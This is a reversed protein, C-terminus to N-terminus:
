ILELLAAEATAKLNAGVGFMASEFRNETARARVHHDTYETVANLLGWATGAVGPLDSGKANGKFLGMIKQFAASERVGKEGGATVPLFSEVLGKADEDSVKVQALSRMNGLFHDFAKSGVLGMKDKIANPDFVTNHRVKVTAGEEGHLAVAQTNWCVVRTSVFKATTALSGDCSTILLLYAKIRDNGMVANEINTNALAWIRRGEKLSGLTEITFGEREVLSRFFEIVEKPQVVKYRNSVVSLPKNSDSRYLVKYDPYDRLEGNTFQVQGEDYQWQMHAQELWQELSAGPTVRQGLGHWPVEGQYAMEAQGNAFLSLHHAM